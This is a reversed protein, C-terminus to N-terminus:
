KVRQQMLNLVLLYKESEVNATTMYVNPEGSSCMTMNQNKNVSVHRGLRNPFTTTRKRFEWWEGGRILLSEDCWIAMFDDYNLKSKAASWCFTSRVLRLFVIMDLNPETIWVILHFRFMFLATIDVSRSGARRWRSFCFSSIELSWM